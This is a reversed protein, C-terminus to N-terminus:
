VGGGSGRKKGLFREIRQLLDPLEFPKILYDDAGVELGSIIDSEEGRVSFIVVPVPRTAKIQRCIEWGGIYPMNLDLLVLDPQFSEFVAMAERPDSVTFVQFGEEQLFRALFLNMERSDDIVLVRQEM